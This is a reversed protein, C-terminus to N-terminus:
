RWFEVLEMAIRKTRAEDCGIEMEETAIRKLHRFIETDTAGGDLMRVIGPAYSDYEDQPGGPGDLVGIPDWERLCALVKLHGAADPRHMYASDSPIEDM